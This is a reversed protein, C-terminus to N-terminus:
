LVSVVVFLLVGAEVGVLMGFDRWRFRESPPERMADLATGAATCLTVCVGLCVGFRTLWDPSAQAALWLATLLGAAGSRGFDQLDM